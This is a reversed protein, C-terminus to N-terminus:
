SPQRAVLTVFRGAATNACVHRNLAAILESGRLGAALRARLSGVVSTMLLAAPLGKGTVDGVVVALRREDLDVVDYLDGGVARAPRMRAHVVVGKKEFVEGPVLDFQIKRATELDGKMEAGLRFVEALVILVVGAFLVMVNVPPTNEFTVGAVSIGRTVRAALWAACGLYVVQGAILALGITRMRASNRPLFPNEDKLTRLVARLLGLIFLVTALGIIALGLAAWRVGGPPVGDFALEGQAKRISAARVGPEATSLPHTAPDLRFSVPIELTVNLAQGRRGSTLAMWVAIACLLPVLVLLGYYPVDVVGKLFSALSWRGLVKM